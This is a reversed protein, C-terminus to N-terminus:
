SKGDTFIFIDFRCCFELRVTKAVALFVDTIERLDVCLYCLANTTYDPKHIYYNYLTEDPSIFARGSVVTIPKIM